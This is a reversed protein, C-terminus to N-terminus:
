EFNLTNVDYDLGPFILGETETIGKIIAEYLAPSSLRNDHGVVCKKKGIRQIHTGFGLGFTYATDEDITTPYVGRVDYARFISHNIDKKYHYEM